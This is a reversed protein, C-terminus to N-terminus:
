NAMLAKKHKDFHKSAFAEIGPRAFCGLLVSIAKKNPCKGSIDAAWGSDRLLLILSNIKSFFRRKHFRHLSGLSKNRVFGFLLSWMVALASFHFRPMLFSPLFSITKGCSKCRYHRIPILQWLRDLLNCAFRHYWGHGVMAGFAGCEKHPCNEPVPYVIEKSATKAIYEEMGSSMLMIQM